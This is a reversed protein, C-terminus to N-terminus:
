IETKLKLLKETYLPMNNASFKILKKCSKLADGITIEEEELEQERDIKDSEVIEIISLIEQQLKKLVKV